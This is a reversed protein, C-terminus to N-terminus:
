AFHSIAVHPDGAFDITTGPLSLMTGGHGDSQEAALAQAPTAVRPGGPPNLDIIGTPDNQFDKITLHSGEEIQFITGLGHDEAVASGEARVINNVGVVSIFNDDGLPVAINGNGNLFTMTHSGFDVGENNIGNLRVISDDTGELLVVNGIGNVNVIANPQDVVLAAVLDQGIDHSQITNQDIGNVTFTTM